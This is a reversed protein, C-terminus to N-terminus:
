SENHQKVEDPVKAAIGRFVYLGQAPGPTSLSTHGFATVILANAGLSAALQKAQQEIQAPTIQGNKTFHQEINVTGLTSYRAPPFPFLRINASDSHEAGPHLPLAIGKASFEYAPRTLYITTVVVFLVLCYVISRNFSASEM